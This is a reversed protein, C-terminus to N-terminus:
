VDCIRRCVEMWWGQRILVVRSQMNGVLKCQAPTSLWRMWHEIVLLVRCCLSRLGRNGGGRACSCERGGVWRPRVYQSNIMMDSGELNPAGRREM